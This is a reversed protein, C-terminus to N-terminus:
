ILHNLRPSKRPTNAEIKHLQGAKLELRTKHSYKRPTSRDSHARRVRDASPTYYRDASLAPSDTKLSRTRTVQIALGSINESAESGIRQKLPKTSSGTNDSNSRKINAHINQCEKLPSRIENQYGITLFRKDKRRDKKVVNTKKNVGSSTSRKVNVQKSKGSSSGGSIQRHDTAPRLVNPSRKKRIVNTSYAPSRKPKLTKVPVHQPSKERTRNISAATPALYHKNHAHPQPALSSKRIPTPPAHSKRNSSKPTPLNTRIGAPVVAGTGGISTRIGTLTKRRTAQPPQHLAPSACVGMRATSPRGGRVPTMNTSFKNVSDLVRGRNEKRIKVISSRGCQPIKNPVSLMNQFFDNGDTWMEEENTPTVDMNTELVKKSSNSTESSDSPIRPQAFVPEDDEVIEINDYITPEESIRAPKKSELGLPAGIRRKAESEM